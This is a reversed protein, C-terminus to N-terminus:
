ATPLANRISSSVTFLFTEVLSTRYADCFAGGGSGLAAPDITVLTASWTPGGGALGICVAVTFGIVTATRKILKRTYLHHKRRQRTTPWDTKIIPAAWQALTKAEIWGIAVQNALRTDAHFKEQGPVIVTREALVNVTRSSSETLRSDCSISRTITLKSSSCRTAFVPNNNALVRFHTAPQLPEHVVRDVKRARGITRM